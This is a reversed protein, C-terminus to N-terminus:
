CIEENSLAHEILNMSQAIVKWPATQISPQLLRATEQYLRLAAIGREEISPALTTQPVIGATHLHYYTWMSESGVAEQVQHFYTNGSRVLVGRQVAIAETVASFLDLMMDSLAVQDHLMRARLIKLVIETQEMMLQSAYANAAGQLPEWKWSHAEQQLKHFSGDKDLLVHAERIGPVVFIAKEPRTFRERYVSLPRSSISILYNECYTFQKQESVNSSEQLIRVVDIDSYPPLADGRAYSGHLIIATVTEDDLESALKALLKDSLFTPTSSANETM